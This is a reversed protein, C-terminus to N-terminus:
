KVFEMMAKVVLAMKSSSEHHPILDPSGVLVIGLAHLRSSNGCVTSVLCLGFWDVLLLSQLCTAVM